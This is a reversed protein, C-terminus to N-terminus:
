LDLQTQHYQGSVGTKTSALAPNCTWPWCPCNPREREWIYACVHTLPQPYLETSYYKHLTYLAKPGIVLVKFFSLFSFWLRSSCSTFSLHKTSRPFAVAHGPSPPPSSVKPHIPLTCMNRPQIITFIYELSDMRLQFYGLYFFPPSNSCETWQAVYSLLCYDM